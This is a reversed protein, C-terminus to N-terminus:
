KNKIQALPLERVGKPGIGPFHLALKAAFVIFFLLLLLGGCIVLASAIASQWQDSAEPLQQCWPGTCKPDPPSTSGTALWFFMTALKVGVVFLFLLLLFMLIVFVVNIARQCPYRDFPEFDICQRRGCCRPALWADCCCCFLEIPERWCPCQCHFCRCCLLRMFRACKIHALAGRMPKERVQQKKNGGTGRM